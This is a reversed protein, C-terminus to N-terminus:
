VGWESMQRDLESMDDQDGAAAAELHECAVRCAASWPGEPDGKDARLAVAALPQWLSWGRNGVHEPLEPVDDAIGDDAEQAMWAGTVRALGEAIARAKADFRPPRYGAQARSRVILCRSIMAKLDPRNASLLTDIGDLVVFTFLPIRIAQGGRVKSASVDPQYSGNVVALIGRSRGPSRFAEDAETLIVTHKDACLDIFAPKTPEILIEPKYCLKGILRAKWSKGSGSPGFIGLRPCYDWVPTGDKWRAHTAAAFLAATVIEHESDWVAMKELYAYYWRLVQNGDIPERQRVIAPETRVAVQQRLQEARQAVQQRYRDQRGAARAADVALRAIM